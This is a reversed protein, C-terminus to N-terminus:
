LTHDASLFLTRSVKNSNQSFGREWIMAPRFPCLATQQTASGLVPTPMETDTFFSDPHQYCLVSPSRRPGRPSQGCGSAEWM